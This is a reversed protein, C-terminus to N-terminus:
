SFQLNIIVHYQNAMPLKVVVSTPVVHQLVPSSSASATHEPSAAPPLNKANFMENFSQNSLLYGNGGEPARVSNM